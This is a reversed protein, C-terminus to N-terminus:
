GKTTTDKNAIFDKEADKLEPDYGGARDEMTKKYQEYFAEVAHVTEISNQKVMKPDLGARGGSNVLGNLIASVAQAKSYGHLVQPLGSSFFSAIEQFAQSMKALAQTQMVVLEKTSLKAPLASSHIAPLKNTKKKIKKKAM